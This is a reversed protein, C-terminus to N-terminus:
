LVIDQYGVGVIEGNIIKVAVGHEIEWASKFLVGVIRENNSYSYPLNLAEFKLLLKMDDVNDIIPAMVDAMDGYRDRYECVVSQYYDFLAKEIEKILNSKLLEFEKFAEIQSQEIEEEEEGIINLFGTETEGFICLEYKRVWIYNYMIEGLIEHYM